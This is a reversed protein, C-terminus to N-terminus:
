IVDSNKHIAKEDLMNEHYIRTITHILVENIKIVVYIANNTYEM